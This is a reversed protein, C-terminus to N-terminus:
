EKFWTDWDLKQSQVDPIIEEEEEIDESPSELSPELWDSFGQATTPVSEDDDFFQMDDLDDSDDFIEYADDDDFDGVM